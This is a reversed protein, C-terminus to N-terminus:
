TAFTRTTCNGPLFVRSFFRLGTYETESARQIIGLAVQFWPFCFVTSLQGTCCANTSNLKKRTRVYKSSLVGRFVDHPLLSYTPTTM